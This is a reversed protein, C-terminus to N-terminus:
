SLYQRAAHVGVGKLTWLAEETSGTVNFLAAAQRNDRCRQDIGSAAHIVDDKFFEFAGAVHFDAEIAFEDVFAHEGRDIDVTGSGPLFLQENGLIFQVSDPNQSLNQIRER